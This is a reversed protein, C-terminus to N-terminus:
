PRHLLSDWGTVLTLPSSNNAPLSNVLFRGDASIDYQFWGFSTTVIRTQLVFQPPGATGKIPDFTAMMLKRDTQIFFIKKGDRSWRPEASGPLRSIQVHPGPGPFPQVLIQRAPVEIYAVWKGDPSFQPEAGSKVFQTSKKEVPSYVDLSPYMGGGLSMYILNGDVSWDCPIVNTGNLLPRSPSSGDTPVVGINLSADRFAISKGDRSWVPTSESGGDTLRTSIGRELDYVRIFHKGNHQDDSYVALSRGDPSFQPGEYGLEPFQGLEKGAPDYWVLRSPADSASQFVLKGDHSVSFGSQWFDFFKDVEQQTLPLAPGTTQLSDTDFPQAMITRDSVYLLNGSAFLVNGTTGSSVFKSASSDITGVYIGPRVTDGTWNVSYLFHKGDPLFFPWHHAEGSGPTVTTVPQPTGGAARVQYIPGVIGPAFVIVGDQNWTGGFFGPADCIDQVSSNALDVAKLRGQAFFGIHFSDPSWFPFVAGETGTIQQANYSSLGRVWLATKGDAGLAVFALRNGDPAFAFSYPLFSSGLPPLLSSRVVRASQPARATFKVALAICVLALVGAVAWPISARFTGPSAAQAAVGPKLGDQVIWKLEHGLDRVNQWREDRDKVLCRGIAHDLAPPTMPKASSVPPPNKEMIASCISLSSKGEFARKGTAMEYLVAGVSFIDSRGDVEGGEVQEPSMYPFTGMVAGDATLPQPSTPLTETLGSSPPALPKALGFDMLKAGTKTLMINGPKLDRHVIGKRHAQELGECIEIGYRFVQEFPLPGRQLRDALTEGELFEMVLYCVGDQEGVDYLHCINPHNLSSISRAERDFREKADANEAQRAKLTKIAVIRDLRTDKARYVEGMGGAGVPTAIEYPGLKTGAALSM